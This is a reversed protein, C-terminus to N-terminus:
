HAPSLPLSRWPEGFVYAGPDCNVVQNFTLLSYMADTPCFALYSNNYDRTATGTPSFQHVILVDQLIKISWLLNQNRIQVHANIKRSKEAAERFVKKLIEASKYVDSTAVLSHERQYLTFSLQKSLLRRFEQITFSRLDFGLAAKTDNLFVCFHDWIGVRSYLLESANFTM